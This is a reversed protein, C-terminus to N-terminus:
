DRREGGFAIPNMEGGRALCVVREPTGLRQQTVYHGRPVSGFGSSRKL